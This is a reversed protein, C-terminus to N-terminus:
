RRAVARTRAPPPGCSARPIFEAPVLVCCPEGDAGHRIRELVLEAAIRGIEAYDWDEVSIPPDSLQALDSDSAAVVSIDSPIAFRRARLARLVGPLMDIGGAVIATPPAKM